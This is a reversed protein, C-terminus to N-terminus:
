PRVVTGRRRRRWLAGAGGTAGEGAPRNVLWVGALITAGGALVPSTIPEHLLWAAVAMTVLPEVYLFVAVHSADAAGLSDYWFVYAVGSCLLGLFALATWGTTTLRGLDEWGRGAAFFPLLMAWGFLLVWTMVLAAPRTRLAPKSLVSFVAWNPASLFVLLDGFHSPLGFSARDIRGRSAVVLAGAFALAIGALKPPPLREGLLLRALLATFVPILAVMWGTNTATTFRLGNVQLLQHVLVGVFGLLAFTGFERGRPARMHGRAAVTALLVAVGMGFRLVLITFPAAERLAAKTAVFSAGWATVACVAKSQWPLHDFAPSRMTGEM